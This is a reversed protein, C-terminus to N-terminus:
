NNKVNISTSMKPNHTAEYTIAILTSIKDVLENTKNLVHIFTKLMYIGIGGGVIFLLLSSDFEM